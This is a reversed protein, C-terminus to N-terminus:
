IIQNTEADVKVTGARTVPIIWLVTGKVKGGVHYVASGGEEVLEIGTVEKM